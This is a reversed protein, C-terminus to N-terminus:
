DGLQGVLNMEGFMYM